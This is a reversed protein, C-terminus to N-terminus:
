PLPSDSTRRRGQRGADRDGQQGADRDGQQADQFAYPFSPRALSHAPGPFIRSHLLARPGAARHGDTVLSLALSRGPEWGECGLKLLTGRLGWPM